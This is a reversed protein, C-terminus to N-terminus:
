SPGGLCRGVLVLADDNQRAHLALVTEAIKKPPFLPDVASSFAREIGDTVFVLLDMPKLALTEVKPEPAHEGVVGGRLLLSTKEGTERLFLGEVNGIGAWKFQWHQFDFVAVSAVVGRARALAKDAAGLMVPLPKHANAVLADIAVRAAAAAGPGHGLGDVLAFMAGGPFSHVAQLDGSVSEGPKARGAFAWEFNPEIASASANM